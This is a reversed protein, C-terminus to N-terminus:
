EAYVGFVSIMQGVDENLVSGHSGMENVSFPLIRVRAQMFPEWGVGEDDAPSGPDESARPLAQIKVM